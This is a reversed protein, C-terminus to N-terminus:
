ENWGASPNDTFDEMKFYYGHNLMYSLEGIPNGDYVKVCYDNFLKTATMNADSIPVGGNTYLRLMYFKQDESHWYRFQIGSNDTAGNSYLLQNNYGTLLGPYHSETIDDNYGFQTPDDEFDFRLHWMTKFDGEYEWEYNSKTLQHPIVDISCAPKGSTWFQYDPDHKLESVVFNATHSTNGPDTVTIIDGITYNYGGDADGAAITMVPNGSSTAINYKLSAGHGTGTLNTITYGGLINNTTTDQFSGTKSAAAGTTTTSDPGVKSISHKHRKAVSIVHSNGMNSNTVDNNNIDYIKNRTGDQNGGLYIDNGFGDVMHLPPNILLHATNRSHYQCNTWAGVAPSYPSYNAGSIALTGITRSAGGDYDPTGAFAGTVSSGVDEQQIYFNSGEQEDLTRTFFMWYGNGPKFSASGSWKLKNGDSADPLVQSAVGAGIIKSVPSNGAHHGASTQDAGWKFGNKVSLSADEGYSVMHWGINFIPYSAPQDMRYGGLGGLTLNFLNFNLTNDNAIEAASFPTTMKMWYSENPSINSLNGVFQGPAIQNCAKNAGILGSFDHGNYQFLEWLQEVTFNSHGDVNKWPFSVLLQYDYSDYNAGPVGVFKWYDRM